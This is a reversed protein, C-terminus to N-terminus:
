RSRYDDIRRSAHATYRWEGARMGAVAIAPMVVVVDVEVAGGRDASRVFVEVDDVGHDVAVERAVAVARAEDVAPWSTVLVRTAERAAVVGAHKREAWVPLTAVLVVIPLLLLAVAAVWEIAVFGEARARRALECTCTGTRSCCGRSSRSARLRSSV